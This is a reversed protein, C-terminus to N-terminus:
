KRQRMSVGSRGPKTGAAARSILEAMRRQVDPDDFPNTAENKAPANERHERTSDWETYDRYRTM